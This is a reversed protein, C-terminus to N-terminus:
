DGKASGGSVQVTSHKILKVGPVRYALSKGIHTITMKKFYNSITSWSLNHILTRLYNIM